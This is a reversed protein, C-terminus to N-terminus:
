SGPGQMLVLLDSGAATPPAPQTYSRAAWRCASTRRTQGATSSDASAVALSAPRSRPSGPSRRCGSRGLVLERVDGEVAEATPLGDVEGAESTRRSDDVEPRRPALRAALLEWQQRLGVLLVARRQADEADVEVVRRGVVRDLQALNRAHGVRQQHIPVRRDPCRQGDDTQRLRYKHVCLSSHDGRLAYREARVGVESSRDASVESHIWSPRSPAQRRLRGSHSRGRASSALETSASCSAGM